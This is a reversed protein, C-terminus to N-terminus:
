FKNTKSFLKEGHLIDENNKYGYKERNVQKQEKEMIESCFFLLIGEFFFLIINISNLIIHIFGGKTEEKNSNIFFRVILYFLMILGLLCYLICFLIILNNNVYCLSIFIAITMIINEGILFLNRIKMSDLQDDDDNLNGIELSKQIVFSVCHIILSFLTLNRYKMKKRKIKKSLKKSSVSQYLSETMENEM